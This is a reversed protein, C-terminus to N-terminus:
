AYDCVVVPISRATRQQYNAYGRYAAVIQPWLEAREADTANHAHITRRTGDITVEADPAAMLNRYWDPDRDDGGKSAVLILRADDHVPATLFNSRPRGSKRGVTHLEVLPMGFPKSLLRNGSLRLIARHAYNMLKAGADAVSTSAM